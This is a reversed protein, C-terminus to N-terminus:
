LVGDEVADHGEGIKTGIEDGLNQDGPDASSPPPSDDDDDGPKFMMPAVTENYFLFLSFCDGM